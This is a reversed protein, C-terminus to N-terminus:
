REYEQISKSLLKYLTLYPPPYKKLMEEQRKMVKRDGRIAPGTQHQSPKSKKLKDINDEILHVLLPYPIGAESIIREAVAWLHNAFNNAFVAALHLVARHASDMHYIDGKLQKVINELQHKVVNNSSEICFPINKKFTERKNFGHAPYLVGNNVSIRKLVDMSVSGSTHVVTKNKLRLRSAINRIADDKVAIIYLDADPAIEKLDCTFPCHLLLSLKKATIRNKSYVQIIPCKKSRLALGIVTAVNGSGILVIKPRNTM